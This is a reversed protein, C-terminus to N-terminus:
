INYETAMGEQIMHTNINIEDKYLVGLWRGYKDQGMCEFKIFSGVPILNTLFEKSILGLPREEGKTEPANIGYFRIRIKKWINFGLDVMADITDGDVIKLVETNEYVYRKM